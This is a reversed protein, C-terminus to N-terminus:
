YRGMGHSLLNPFIMNKVKMFSDNVIEMAESENKTYRICVSMAFSFYRKYLLEQYRENGESCGKILKLDSYDRDDLFNGGM